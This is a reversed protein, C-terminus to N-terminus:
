NIIPEINQKQSVNSVSLEKIDFTHSIPGTKTGFDPAYLMAKHMFDLALEVTQFFDIKQALGVAIASALTAGAGLTNPTDLMPREYIRKEELTMVLYVAKGDPCPGAKLVIKEAGFTRMMDAAHHLDAPEQIRLGTLLETEHLNPTLVTARVFLRRKIMAITQEDLLQRGDRAVIAPDVVVPIDKYQDEALVDAVANVIDKNALFGTKIADAGIDKLVAHMQQTVFEPELVHLHEIGATSQATVASLTTTAYGRLALITKIDAQIGAAGCSDSEAVALVRGSM